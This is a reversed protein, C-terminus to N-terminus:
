LWVGKEQWLFFSTAEDLVRVGAESTAGGWDVFRGSRVEFRIRRSLWRRVVRVVQLALKDRVPNERSHTVIERVVELKLSRSRGWWRGPWLVGAALSKQRVKGLYRGVYVRAEREGKLPDVRVAHKLAAVDDLEGNARGWAVACRERTPEGECLVHFHVVGRQQFELVWLYRGLEGRLTTLFRNLDQKCRAAIRENRGADSEGAERRAHYTLTVLSRFAASGNACIFELGKKSARSLKTIAARDGRQARRGRPREEPTLGRRGERHFVFGAPYVQVGYEQMFV